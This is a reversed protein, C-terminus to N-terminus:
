GGYYDRVAGYATLIASYGRLFALDEGGIAVAVGRADTVSHDLANLVDGTELLSVGRQVLEVDRFEPQDIM